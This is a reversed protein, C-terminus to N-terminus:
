KSFKTLEMSSMLNGKKNYTEQKVMGVGEALWVRSPFNQKVMMAKSENDSYIVFCNFTGAPTTVSEQKEVKRNTTDVTSKMNMGGMGISISVNADELEQGVALDNPLELDTGSIDMEVDMEAYQELMQAPMLSEYDVTVMNGQCTFSYNTEYVMEGKKDTFSIDMTATTGDANNAVDTVAYNTIGETKGKKDYMTYEFTTGEEMPYFRSCQNQAFTATAALCFLGSFLIKFKM